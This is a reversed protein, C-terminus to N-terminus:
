SLTCGAPWQPLEGQVLLQGLELQGAPLLLLLPIVQRDNVNHQQDWDAFQLLVRAPLLTPYVVM